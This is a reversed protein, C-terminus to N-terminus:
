DTPSPPTKPSKASKAGYGAIFGAVLYAVIEFIKMVVQEKNTHLAYGTFVLAIFITFVAALTVVRICQAQLAREGERDKLQAEISKEAIKVQNKEKQKAIDLEDKRVEVEKFQLEIFKELGKQSPNKLAKKPLNQKDKRPNM